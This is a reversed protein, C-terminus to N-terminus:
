MKRKQQFGTCALMIKRPIIRALVSLIKIKEEPIIIEEGVDLGRAACKACYQPTIGRLAFKVGAVENFSTNVPGPCLAAIRVSSGSRRLEDSIANTLSVIYAKSAYYVAM